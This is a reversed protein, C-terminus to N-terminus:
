KGAPFRRAGAEAIAYAAYGLLGVAAVGLLTSGYPQHALLSLVDRTGGAEGPDRRWAARLILAGAAGFMGGQTTFGVTGLLVVLSRLRASARVLNLSGLFSRSIGQAAQRIGIGVGLAGIVMALPPGGPIGLAEAVGQRALADGSPGANLGLLIRIGAAGLGVYALGGVAQGLRTVVAWAGRRGSTGLLSEIMFWSGLCAIGLGAAASLPPGMSSRSLRTLAGKVDLLPGHGGWAHRFAFTGINAYLFAKTAFGARALAHMLPSRAIGELTRKGPHAGREESSPGAAM